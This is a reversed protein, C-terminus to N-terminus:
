INEYPSSSPTETGKRPFEHGSWWAVRAPFFIKHTIKRLAFGWSYSIPASKPACSPPEGLIGKFSSAAWVLAWLPRWTHRGPLVLLGTGTVAGPHWCALMAFSLRRFFRQNTLPFCNRLYGGQTAILVDKRVLAKQIKSDQVELALSHIATTIKLWKLMCNFCGHLIQIAM